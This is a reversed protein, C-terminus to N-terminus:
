VRSAEDTSRENFALTASLVRAAPATSCGMTSAVIAPRARGRQVVGDRLGDLTL